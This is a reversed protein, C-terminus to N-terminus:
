AANPEDATRQRQKTIWVTDNLHHTKKISEKRRKRTPNRRLDIWEEKKQVNQMKMEERRRATLVVKRRSSKKEVMDNKM